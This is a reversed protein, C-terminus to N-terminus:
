IGRICVELAYRETRNRTMLKSHQLIGLCEISVEVLVLGSPFTCSGSAIQVSDAM